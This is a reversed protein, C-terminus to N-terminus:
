LKEIGENAIYGSSVRLVVIAKRAAEKEALSNITQMGKEVDKYRTVTDIYVISETMIEESLALDIATSFKLVKVKRMDKQLVKVLAALAAKKSTTVYVHGQKLDKALEVEKESVSVEGVKKALVIIEKQCYNLCQKKYREKCEKCFKSYECSINGM